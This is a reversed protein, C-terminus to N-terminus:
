SDRAFSTDKFYDSIGAILGNEFRVITVGRNEYAIGSNNSGKNSWVVCVRDQEAIHEHVSFWLRPYKRLLAKLFILVKKKGTIIGAGPFDFVINESVLPELESFERQNMAEFIKLAYNKQSSM